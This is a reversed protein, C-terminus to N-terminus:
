GDPGCGDSGNLRRTGIIECQDADVCFRPEKDRGSEGSGVDELWQFSAQERCIHIHLTVIQDVVTSGASQDFSLDAVSVFNNLLPLDGM